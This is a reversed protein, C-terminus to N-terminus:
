HPSFNFFIWKHGNISCYPHYTSLEFPSFVFSCSIPAYELHLQTRTWSCLRFFAYEIHAPYMIYIYNYLYMELIQFSKRWTQKFLFFLHFFLLLQKWAMVGNVAPPKLLRAALGLFIEALWTLAEKPLHYEGLLHGGSASPTASSYHIWMRNNIYIYIYIYIYIHTHTM